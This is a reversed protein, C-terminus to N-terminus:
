YPIILHDLALNGCCVPSYDLWFDVWFMLPSALSALHAAKARIQHGFLARFRNFDETPVPEMFFGTVFIIRTLLRRLSPPSIYTFGM